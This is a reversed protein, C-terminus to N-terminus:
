TLDRLGGLDLRVAWGLALQAGSTADLTLETVTPRPGGGGIAARLAAALAAGDLGTAHATLLCFGDDALLRACGALLDDLGDELRWERGKAGGGGRGFAPPDLVIGDYRRGRRQEREVFAMADDVLWRVPRDALGSLEANRRAWSLAARAGDIHVVAAGARAAALTALGTHAFLNLVQPQSTGARARVRADLWDLNASATPRLEMTLGAIEVAWPEAPWAPGSWGAGADFRLDAAPWAEPALRFGDAGPASRDITVIRFRELRRRVGCDLLEYGPASEALPEM